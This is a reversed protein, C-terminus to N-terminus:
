DNIIAEIETITDSIDVSKVRYLVKKEEYYDVLPYTKEL